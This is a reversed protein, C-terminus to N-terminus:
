LLLQIKPRDKLQDLWRRRFCRPYTGETTKAVENVGINEADADAAVNAAEARHNDSGREAGTEEAANVTVSAAFMIAVVAVAAATGVFFLDRCCCCCYRDKLRARIELRDLARSKRSASRYKRAIFKIHMEYGNLFKVNTKAIM